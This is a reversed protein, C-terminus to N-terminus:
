TGDRVVVEAGTTTFAVSRVEAWEKCAEALAAKVPGTSGTRCWVLVAPGAGSVTAGLAGAEKATSIAAMSDEYMHARRPQHIRDELGAAILDLDDSIIGLVLRSVFGLNAVADQLSVAAPLAERAERTPLRGFPVLVLAELDRPMVLQVPPRDPQAGCVVVGGFISAAVNDPHGEIECALRYLEAQSADRSHLANAALLGAVIAAASAGFGRGPPIALRITFKHEAAPALKDFAAVCFNKADDRIDADGIDISFAESPEVELELHMNLAAAM